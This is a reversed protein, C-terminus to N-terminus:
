PEWNNVPLCFRGVESSDCNVELAVSDIVVSRSPPSFATSIPQQELLTEIKIRTLMMATELGLYYGSFDPRDQQLKKAIQEEEKLEICYARLEKILDRNM